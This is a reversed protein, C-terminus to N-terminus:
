GSRSASATLIRRRWDGLLKALTHELPIRPEWGTDARLKSPDGILAPVDAPRLREPDVRVEVNVDTCRLLMDLM